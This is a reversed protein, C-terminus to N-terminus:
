EGVDLRGAALSLRLSRSLRDAQGPMCIPGAGDCAVERRAEQAPPLAAIMLVNDLARRHLRASLAGATM